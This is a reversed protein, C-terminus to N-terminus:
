TSTERERERERDATKIIKKKKRPHQISSVQAAFTQTSWVLWHLFFRCRVDRKRMKKEREQTKHKTEWRWLFSVHFSLSLSLSLFPLFRLFLKFIGLFHKSINARRGKWKGSLFKTAKWLKSIRQPDPSTPSSGLNQIKRPNKPWQNRDKQSRM